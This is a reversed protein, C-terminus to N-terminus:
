KQSGSVAARASVPLGAYYSSVAEIDEASLQYAVAPMLGLPLPSRKGTQWARLQAILYNKSQGALAPFTTGVGTGAPGHCQNCAPINKDWAGRSALWEGRETVPRDSDAALAAADFPHPLASFYVSVAQREDPTLAKAIAQMVPSPRVGDAIDNLQKLLYASGQGALYPFGAAANGEGKAGHCSICAAAGHAGSSAIRQGETIVTEAAHSMAVTLPWCLLAISIVFKRDM